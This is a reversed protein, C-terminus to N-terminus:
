QAACPVIAVSLIERSEGGTHEERGCFLDNNKDDATRKDADADRHNDQRSRGKDDNRDPKTNEASFEAPGSRKQFPNPVM